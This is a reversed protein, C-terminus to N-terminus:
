DIGLKADVIAGLGHDDGDLTTEDPDILLRNFLRARCRIRSERHNSSRSRRPNLSPIGQPRRARNWV